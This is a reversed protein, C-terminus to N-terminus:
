MADIVGVWCNWGVAILSSPDPVASQEDRTPLAIIISAAAILNFDTAYQGNLVAISSTVPRQDGQSLLNAGWFFDNCLSTFELTGLAALAPRTLPLIVQFYQRLVGAGDVSAAESLEKPLRRRGPRIHLIRDPIRRTRLDRRDQHRASGRTNSDSIVDPRNFTAVSHRSFPQGRRSYREFLQLNACTKERLTTGIQDIKSIKHQNRNVIHWKYGM